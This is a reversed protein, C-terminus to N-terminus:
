PRIELEFESFTVRLKVLDTALEGMLHVALPDQQMKAEQTLIGFSVTCCIQTDTLYGFIISIVVFFPITTPCIPLDDKTILTHDFLM